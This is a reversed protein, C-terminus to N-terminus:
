DSQQGFKYNNADFKCKVAVFFPMQAFSDTEDTLRTQRVQTEESRKKRSESDKNDTTLRCWGYEFDWSAVYCNKNAYCRQMCGLADCVENDPNMEPYYAQCVSRTIYDEQNWVENGWSVFDDQKWVEM